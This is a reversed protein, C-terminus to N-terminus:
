VRQCTLSVSRFTLRLSREQRKYSVIDVNNFDAMASYLTQAHGGPLWWCPNFAKQLSPVREEILTELSVNATNLGEKCEDGKRANLNIRDDDTPLVAPRRRTNITVRAVRTGVHLTPLRSPIMFSLLSVLAGM